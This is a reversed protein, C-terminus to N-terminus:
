VLHKSFRLVDIALVFIKLTERQVNQTQGDCLRMDTTCLTHVWDAPRLVTFRLHHVGAMGVDATAGCHVRTQTLAAQYVIQEVDEHLVDVLLVLAIVVVRAAAAAASPFALTHECSLLKARM